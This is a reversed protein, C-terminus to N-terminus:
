LRECKAIRGRLDPLTIDPGFEALLTALRYQGRRDCRTCALRVMANPYDKLQLAGSQMASVIGQLGNRAM